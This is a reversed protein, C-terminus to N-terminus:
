NLTGDYHELIDWPLYGLPGFRRVRFELEVVTGDSGLMIRARATVRHFGSRGTAEFGDETDSVQWGPLSQRAFAQAAECAREPTGAVPTQRRYLQYRWVM